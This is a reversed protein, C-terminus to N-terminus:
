VSSTPRARRDGRRVPRPECQDGPVDVGRPGYAKALRVLRPMYLDGIPCDLGTFVIVTAKAEGPEPLSVATGTKADPLTFGAVPEGIGRGLNEEGGRALSPAVIMVAMAAWQLARVSM